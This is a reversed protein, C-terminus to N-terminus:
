NDQTKIMNLVKEHMTTWKDAYNSKSFLKVWGDLTLEYDIKDFYELLKDYFFNLYDKVLNLSQFGIAASM